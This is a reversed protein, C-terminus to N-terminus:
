RARAIRSPQGNALRSRRNFSAAAVSPTAGKAQGQTRLVPIQEGFRPGFGMGAEKGRPRAGYRREVPMRLHSPPGQTLAQSPSASLPRPLDEENVSASLDDELQAFGAGLFQLRCKLAHNRLRDFGAAAPGSGMTALWGALATGFVSATRFPSGPRTLGAM